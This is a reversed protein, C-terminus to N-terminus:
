EDSMLQGLHVDADCIGAYVVKPGIWMYFSPLAFFVFTLLCRLPFNHNRPCYIPFHFVTDSSSIEFRATASHSRGSVIFAIMEVCQTHM